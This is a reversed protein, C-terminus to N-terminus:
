FNPGSLAIRWGHTIVSHGTLAEHEAMRRRAERTRPYHGQVLEPSDDEAFAALTRDRLESLDRGAALWSEKSDRHDTPVAAWLERLIAACAACQFNNPLPM